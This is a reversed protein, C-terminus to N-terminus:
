VMINKEIITFLPVIGAAFWISHANNIQKNSWKAHRRKMQTGKLHEPRRRCLRKNFMLPSRQKNNNNNTQQKTERWRIMQTGKLHALSRLRGAMNERRKVKKHRRQKYKIWYTSPTSKEICRWRRMQKEGIRIKTHKHQKCYLNPASWRMQEGALLPLHLSFKSYTEPASTGVLM